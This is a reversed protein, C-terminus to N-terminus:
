EILCVPWYDPLIIWCSRGPKQVRSNIGPSGYDGRSDPRYFGRIEARNKDPPPGMIICPFQNYGPVVGTEAIAPIYWIGVPVGPPWFKVSYNQKFKLDSTQIVASCNLVGSKGKIKPLISFDHSFACGNNGGSTLLYM